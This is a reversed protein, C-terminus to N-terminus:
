GRYLEYFDDMDVDADLAKRGFNSDLFSNCITNENGDWEGSEVFQVLDQLIWKKIAYVLLTKTVPLVYFIKSGGRGRRNGFAPSGPTSVKESYIKEHIM